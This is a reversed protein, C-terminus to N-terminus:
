GMENERESWEQGKREDKRKEQTMWVVKEDRFSDNSSGHM